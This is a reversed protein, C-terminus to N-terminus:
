SRRVLLFLKILPLSKDRGVQPLGCLAGRCSREPL